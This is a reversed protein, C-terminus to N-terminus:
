VRQLPATDPHLTTPLIDSGLAPQIARHRALEFKIMNYVCTDRFQKAVDEEGAFLHLLISSFKEIDGLHHITPAIAHEIGERVNDFRAFSFSAPPAVDLSQFHLFHGVGSEWDNGDFMMRDYGRGEVGNRDRAIGVSPYAIYRPPETKIEVDSDEDSWWSTSYSIGNKVITACIQAWSDHTVSPLFRAIPIGADFAVGSLSVRGTKVDFDSEIVALRLTAFESDPPGSSRTAFRVQIWTGALVSKIKYHKIFYLRYLPSLKFLHNLGFAAVFILLLLFERSWIWSAGASGNIVVFIFGFSATVAAPFNSDVFARLAEKFHERPGFFPRM